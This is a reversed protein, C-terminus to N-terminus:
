SLAPIVNQLLLWFNLIATVLDFFAALLEIKKM